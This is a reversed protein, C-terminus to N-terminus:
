AHNGRSVKRNMGRTEGCFKNASPRVPYPVSHLTRIGRTPKASLWMNNNISVSRSIVGERTDWISGRRPQDTTSPRSRMVSPAHFELTRFWLVLIFQISHEQM